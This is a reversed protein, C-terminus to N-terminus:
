GGPMDEGTLPQTSHRPEAFDSNGFGTTMPDDIMRAVTMLRPAMLDLLSDTLERWPRRRSPSLPGAANNDEAQAPSTPGPPTQPLVPPPPPPLFQGLRARDDNSQPFTQATAPKALLMSLALLWCGLKM